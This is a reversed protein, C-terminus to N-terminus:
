WLPVLLLFHEGAALCSNPPLRHAHSAPETKFHWFTTGRKGCICLFNRRRATLYARRWRPQVVNITQRDTQRCPPGSGLCLVYVRVDCSSTALSILIVFFSGLLRFLLTSKCGIYHRHINRVQNTLVLINKTSLLSTYTRIYTRFFVSWPIRHDHSTIRHHSGTIHDQSTIRPHSSLIRSFSRCYSLVVSMSVPDLM